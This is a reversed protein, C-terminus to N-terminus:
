ELVKPVKFADEAPDPSNQLVKRLPLHGGAEDERLVNELGLVHFTPEVDKTDLEDLKAVYDLISALQSTFLEREEEALELRALLAIHDVEDKNIRVIM